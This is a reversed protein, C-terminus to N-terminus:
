GQRIHVNGGDIAGGAAFGSDTTIQFHDRLVIRYRTPAGDITAHGVLVVLHEVVVRVDGHDDYPLYDGTAFFAWGTLADGADATFQQKLLEGPCGPSRVLGFYSGAAATFGAYGQVATGNGEWGTTTCSGPV